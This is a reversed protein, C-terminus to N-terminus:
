DSDLTIQPVYGTILLPSPFFLFLVSCVKQPLRGRFAYDLYNLTSKNTSFRYIKIIPSKAM